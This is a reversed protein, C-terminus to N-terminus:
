PAPRRTCTTRTELERIRDRLDGLRNRESPDAPSATKATEAAKQAGRNREARLRNAEDGLSRREKDLALLRDVEAPDRGRAVLGARIAEASDRVYSIPYM